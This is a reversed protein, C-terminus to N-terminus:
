SSDGNSSSILEKVLWANWVLGANASFEATSRDSYVGLLKLDDNKLGVVPSGTM